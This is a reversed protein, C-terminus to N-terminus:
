RVRHFNSAATRLTAAFVAVLAGWVLPHLGVPVLVMLIMCAFVALMGHLGIGFLVPSAHAFSRLKVARMVAGDITAALLVPLGIAFWEALAALRYVALRGLARVGQIYPTESVADAAAALRVSLPDLRPPDAPAVKHGAESAHGLWRLARVVISHEAAEGLWKAHLRHEDHITAAVSPPLVLAPLSLWLLVVIATLVAATRM